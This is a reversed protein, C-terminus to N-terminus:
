RALVILSCGGLFRVTADPAARYLASRLPRTCRALFGTGGLDRFSPTYDVHLIDYGCDSLTAVATEKTFYHLHGVSARARLPTGRILSAVSLDLPIHFVKYRAKLRIDRLFQMYNEVHEFVDICLLADYYKDNALLDANHYGIRPTAKPACLSYAQESIEFGDFRTSPLLKALHVLIDGAGCGIECVTNLAEPVRALAAAIHTAKWLSDEAHWSTNAVQYAGSTYRDRPPHKM